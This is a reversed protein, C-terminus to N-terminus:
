SNFLHLLAIFLTLLVACVLSLFNIIKRWNRRFILSLIFAIFIGIVGGSSNTIVDTIDTAGIGLFYQVAEFIVSTLIVPIIQCLFNKKELLIHIFLGYPIFALVNQIIEHYDIQGNTIMSAGFPILNINKIHPLTEYSFQMKFIIIWTLAALYFILLGFTVKKSNM